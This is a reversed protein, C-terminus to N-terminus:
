CRQRRTRGTDATDSCYMVVNSVAQYELLMDYYTILQEVDNTLTIDHLTEAGAQIDSPSLEGNHVLVHVPSGHRLM